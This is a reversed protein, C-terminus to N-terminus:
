GAAVATRLLSRGTDLMRKTNEAMYTTLMSSAGSEDGNAAMERGKRAMERASGLLEQQLSKWAARIEARRAPGSRIGDHTLRYFMWWPSDASPKEGGVSLVAPLEGEIFTPLFLTMCPSYMGCWYTPLRSGDACLIAVLSAATNGPPTVQGIESMSEETRHVCLSVPGRIDEAWPEDPHRGDSHDSLTRMMASAEIGGAATTLLANSRCQRAIGSASASRDAFAAAWDFEGATKDYLGAKAANAQATNSMGDADKGIMGINSISAFGGTKHGNHAQASRVKKVAWDHGCCEVIYAERPDACLYINDYTRIGAANDFKGQGHKEVLGTIVSVAEQATAARELALRLIEMGILRKEKVAPLKSPLAENGIVVQHENFGHEYGVCWYPRSGIHRYTAPAQSIAIFQAEFTSGAAHSARQRLVLPQCEGQPRDSNKAFIVQGNATAGPLAVMTDCSFDHNTLTDSRPLLRPRPAKMPTM